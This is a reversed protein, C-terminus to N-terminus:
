FENIFMPVSYNHVDSLNLFAAVNLMLEILFDIFHAGVILIIVDGSLM